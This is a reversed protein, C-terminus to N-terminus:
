SITRGVTPQSWDSSLVSEWVHVVEVQAIRGNLSGRGLHGQTTELQCHSSMLAGAGSNEYVILHFHVCCTGLAFNVGPADSSQCWYELHQASPQGSVGQRELDKDQSFQISRKPHGLM